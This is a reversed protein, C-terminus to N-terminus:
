PIVSAQLPQIQFITHDMVPNTTTFPRGIFRHYGFNMLGVPPDLGVSSIAQVIQCYPLSGPGGCTLAGAAVPSAEARDLPRPMRERRPSPFLPRDATRRVVCTDCDGHTARSVSGGIMQYAGVDIGSPGVRDTCQRPSVCHNEHV